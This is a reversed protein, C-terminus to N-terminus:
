NYQLTTGIEPRPAVGNEREHEEIWGLLEWLERTAAIVENSAEGWLNRFSLNRLDGLNSRDMAKKFSVSDRYRNKFCRYPFLPRGADLLIQTTYDKSVGQAQNFRNIFVNTREAIAPLLLDDRLYRAYLQLGQTSLRDPVQPVIIKDAARIVAESLLSLGPPTDCIILDFKSRAEQLIENMWQSLYSKAQWVNNCAVLLRREFITLSPSGCLLHTQGYKLFFIHPSPAKGQWRNELYDEITHHRRWPLFEDECDGILTISANIQLDLDIVLTKKGMAASAEAFSVAITTKGIGGKMNVIPILKSM